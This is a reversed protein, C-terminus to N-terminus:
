AAGHLLQRAEELGIANRDLADHIIHFKEEPSAAASVADRVKQADAETAKPAGLATALILRRLPKLQDRVEERVSERVLVGLAGILSKLDGVTAPKKLPDFAASKKTM